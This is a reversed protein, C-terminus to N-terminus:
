IGFYPAFEQERRGAEFDAIYREVAQRTCGTQRRIEDPAVGRAHLSLVMHPKAKSIRRPETLFPYSRMTFRPPAEAQRLKKLSLGVRATRTVPRPELDTRRLALPSGADWAPRAAIAEDLAAVDAAETRALLHDVCLSPGDVLEGDPRELGRI